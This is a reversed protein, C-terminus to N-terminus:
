CRLAEMCAPIETKAQRPHCRLCPEQASPTPVPVRMAFMVFGGAVLHGAPCHHFSRIM